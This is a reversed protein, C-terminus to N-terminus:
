KFVFDYTLTYNLLIVEVVINLLLFVNHEKFIQMKVPFLELFKLIVNVITKINMM